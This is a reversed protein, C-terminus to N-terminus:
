MLYTFLQNKPISQLLELRFYNFKFQLSMDLIHHASHCPGDEKNCIEQLIGYHFFKSFRGINTVTIFSHITACKKSETHVTLYPLSLFLITTYANHVVRCLAAVYEKCLMTIIGM